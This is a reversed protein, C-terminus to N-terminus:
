RKKKYIYCDTKLSFLKFLARPIIHFNVVRLPNYHLYYNYNTRCFLTSDRFYRRCM